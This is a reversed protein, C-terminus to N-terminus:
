HGMWTGLGLRARRLPVIVCTSKGDPPRDVRASWVQIPPGAGITIATDAEAPSGEISGAARVTAPLAVQPAFVPLTGSWGGRDDVDVM